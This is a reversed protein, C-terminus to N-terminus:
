LIFEATFFGFYTGVGYGLSGVLIAPLMLDEREFSKALALASTSGGINAQSAIAAIHVDIKFFSAFSFAFLGNLLVTMSALVFIYGGLTGISGLARFDCFAGIVALFLYVTFMGMVRKGPLRSFFPVQAFILALTTLILASPIRVGTELLLESIMNSFLISILALGTLISLSWPDVTETDHNDIQETNIVEVPRESINNRFYKLKILFRPLSITVIMWITTIINDVAVSGAYLVGEKAIGYHLALTNLNISGGVYTGVFMGGLGRYSEGIIESGNILYMATVVGITTGVAGVLFISLMKLGARMIDKLNVDLLLLFIALPAVYEFIYDYVPADNSNTPIIQLNAVVATVVIVLLATGFHRFFTKRVLFESLVVNGCLVALIFLPEYFIGIIRRRKLILLIKM